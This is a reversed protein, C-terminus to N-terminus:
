WPLEFFTELPNWLQNLLTPLFYSILQCLFWRSYSSPITLTPLSTYTYSFQSHSPFCKFYFTFVHLTPLFYSIPLFRYSITYSSYAYKLTPPFAPYKIISFFLLNSIPHLFMHHLFSIPFWNFSIDVLNPVLVVKLILIFTPIMQLIICSTPVDSTLFSPFLFVTSLFYSPQFIRRRLCSFFIWDEM